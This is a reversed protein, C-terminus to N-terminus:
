EDSLVNFLQDIEEKTNYTHICFRIRESGEAISPKRIPLANIGSESLKMGLEVVNENGPVILSQIQSHSNLWSSNTKNRKEVFYSINSQLKKRENEIEPLLQYMAEIACFQHVAPATSFIISRSFNVQYDKLWKPGIVAAGHIGPGKGYTMIRALVQDQLGFEQVLGSGSEGRVAMSHAEDVILQAENKNCVEVIDKLPCIDGDMSYISEVTVIKQGTYEKLKKDLDSPDNHFFRVRKSHGLRAGDILSAHILEDCFLTTERTALSSILGLNATYGSSYILASETKHFDAVLQEVSEMYTSNGSLLRSGTAGNQISKNSALAQIADALKSSQALGLYDNSCFDIGEPPLPLIRLLHQKKREELAKQYSNM